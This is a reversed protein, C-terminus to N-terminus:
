LLNECRDGLSLRVVHNICNPNRGTAEGLRTRNTLTRDRINDKIRGTMIRINTLQEMVMPDINSLEILNLAGEIGDLDKHIDQM